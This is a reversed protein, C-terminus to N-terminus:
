QAWPTHAWGLQVSPSRLPLSLPTSQPPLQLGHATPEGHRARVSQTLPIQSPPTHPAAGGDQVSPLLDPSSVSTSQPPGVQPGHASFRTHPPSASQKLANQL